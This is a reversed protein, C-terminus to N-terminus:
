KAEGRARLAAATLALAPTAARGGGQGCGMGFVEASNRSNIAWSCGEPVLTMAADLSATFREADYWGHTGDDFYRVVAGVRNDSPRASVVWDPAIMPGAACAIAADLERDHGTAAECRAALELLRESAGSNGPTM